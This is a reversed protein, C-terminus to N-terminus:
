TDNLVQITSQNNVFLISPDPFTYGVVGLFGRHQKHYKVVAVSCFSEFGLGESIMNMLMVESVNQCTLWQEMM